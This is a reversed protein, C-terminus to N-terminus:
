PKRAAQFAGIQGLTLTAADEGAAFAKYWTVISALADDLNWRPRYGLEDQAKSTDLYLYHAEHPHNATKDLTWSAGDGWLQSIRDAIWEVPRADDPAPGFNFASDAGDQKDWLAECLTLYGSLPELVHQWPRVAKPARILPKEGIMFANMLDVILRDRAWDGGGIVNGARGSALPVGAAQLFSRRYASVVLESGAKSSSYPDHGGLADSEVYGRTVGVNEYCKDTTVCLLAGIDGASRAAELFHATGMVNVAYTEIPAEYSYRVLPQAAMHIAIDPKADAMAARLAGLDRVDAIIHGAIRDAIRARDFLSPETPPALAYGHVAAGMEALWLSLWSGKFGTHGTLFVRKGRWFAPTM